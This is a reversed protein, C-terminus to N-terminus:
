QSLKSVRIISGRDADLIIQEGDQLIRTVDQVGLVSPLGYERAVVAGHSILGGVETIIGSIIPFLPSFAIDTSHTLLIDGPRVKDIDNYGNVLCVKGEVRGSSAPTGFLKPANALAEDLEKAPKLHNPTLDFGTIIEDFKWPDKFVKFMNQRRSARVVLGPQPERILSEVEDYFLYYFLDASPLRLNRHLEEALMRSAERLIDQFEVLIDKTKERSAVMTQARPGILYTLIIRDKFSLQDLDLSKIVESLSSLKRSEDKLKDGSQCNKKIMDVIQAKDERWSKASLEFENYCRHGFRALFSSFKKALNQDQQSTLFSLSDELSMAVFKDVTEQGKDRILRSMDAIREPIEASIVNPSTALIKGLATFLQVPDKIYKSLIALLAMNIGNSMFIITVHNQWASELYNMLHKLQNFLGIMKNQEYGTAFKLSQVNARLNRMIPKQRMITTIPMLRLAKTHWEYRKGQFFNENPLIDKSAERITNTEDTIEHGFFGIEMAKAMLPKEEGPKGIMFIPSCRLNFFVHYFDYVIEYSSQACYPLQDDVLRSALRYGVISWFYISYTMSFPRVAFPMVEGINARTLCDLEARSPQDSEHRLEFESLVDLGTVPRSQFLFLKDDKFGWEVDQACRYFRELRLGRSALKVIEAESLCCVSKNYEGSSEERLSKEDVVVSKAGVQTDINFSDGSKRARIMDPESKGSVVSEGLGYNATITILDPQGSTPDCTFMVGAKDCFIMEQVIVAMPASLALGHQRKYQVNEYSFKSALCSRIAGLIADWGKAGLVTSLQGAASMDEEDEGWSSSRVAFSKQELQDGHLGELSDKLAKVVSEPLSVEAFLKCLKDCKQRLEVLRDSSLFQELKNVEDVLSKNEDLIKEYSFKTLVVAPSVEFQADEGKSISSLKALSSAKAGVLDSCACDADNMSVVLPKEDSTFKVEQIVLNSKLLELHEALSKQVKEVDAPQEAFDDISLLCWGSKGNVDLSYIPVPLNRKSADCKFSCTQGNIQFSFKDTQETLSNWDLETSKDIPLSEPKIKFCVYGNELQEKTKKHAAVHFVQGNILHSLIRKTHVQEADSGSLFHKVHFGWTFLTRKEGDLHCEGVVRVVQEHRDHSLLESKIEDLSKDTKLAEYQAALYNSDFREKFDFISGSPQVILNLRIFKTPKVEESSSVQSMNGRFVVRMRRYPSDILFKLSNTGYKMIYDPHMNSRSPKYTEVLETQYQTSDDLILTLKSLLTVLGSEADPRWKMELWVVDKAYVNSCVLTLNESRALNPTGFTFDKECPIMGIAKPDSLDGLPNVYDFRAKEKKVNQRKSWFSSMEVM